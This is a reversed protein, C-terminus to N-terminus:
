ISDYHFHLINYNPFLSIRVIIYDIFLKQGVILPKYIFWSLFMLVQITVLNSRFINYALEMKVYALDLYKMRSIVYVM